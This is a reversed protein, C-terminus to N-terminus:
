VEISSRVNSEKIYQVARLLLDPDDKLLGMGTNCDSCLLGRVRQTEHDHDVHCSHDLRVGCIGCGGLQLVYLSNYEAQTLGYKRFRDNYRESTQCRWKGTDTRLRIDVYSQCASCYARRGISDIDTLEHKVPM